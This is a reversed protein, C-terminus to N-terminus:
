CWGEHLNASDRCDQIYDEFPEADIADQNALQYELEAIIAELAFFGKSIRSHIAKTLLLAEPYSDPSKILQELRDLECATYDIKM